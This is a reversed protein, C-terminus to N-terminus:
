KPSALRRSNSSASLASRARDATMMRSLAIAASAHHVQQVAPEGLEIDEDAGAVIGMLAPQGIGAGAADHMFSVLHTQLEAFGDEAAVAGGVILDLIDDAIVAGVIIRQQGTHDQRYLRILAFLPLPLRLRLEGGEITM